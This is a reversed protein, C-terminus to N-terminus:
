ETERDRRKNSHIGRGNRDPLFQPSVEFDRGLEERIGGNFSKCERQWGAKPFQKLQFMAGQPVYAIGTLSTDPGFNM